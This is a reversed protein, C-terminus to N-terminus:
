PAVGRTHSMATRRPCAFAWRPLPRTGASPGSVARRTDRRSPFKDLAPVAAIEFWRQGTVADAMPYFVFHSGYDLLKRLM